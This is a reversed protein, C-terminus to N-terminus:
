TTRVQAGLWEAAGNVMIMSKTQGGADPHHLKSLARYGATILEGPMKRIDESVEGTNSPSDFRLHWERDIASRLPGHLDDLNNLWDLYDDPLDGVLVGRYKGFPMLM